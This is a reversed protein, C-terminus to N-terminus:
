EHLEKEFRQISLHFTTTEASCEVHVGGGHAEAIKKVISLGLGSGSPGYVADVGRYYREFIKKREEARITSGAMPVNRICIWTESPAQQIEIAIHSGIASYKAANDVLQQLALEMMSADFRDHQPNDPAAMKIRTQIEKEQERIVKRVLEVISTSSRRLRIEKSELAATQLLRNTLQNLMTAREDIISVLEAQTPSLRDIALLGSSAARIATLPTKFSHALGDLVATRLREADREIEARNERQIAHTREFTIAALSAVADAALPDILWGCMSMGGICNTGLRLVRHSCRTVPDDWDKEELYADYALKRSDSLETEGPNETREAAIWFKVNNVSFLERILTSLQDSTSRRQDLLLIARSLEFLKLARERQTDAQVSHLHVKTSLGSVLLATAEFTFLSVWNQPDAVSFTFVPETFLFNLSLFAVISVATAQFFGRRLAVLLVFLLEIFGASSLNIHLWFGIISIAIAILAFPLATLLRFLIQGSDLGTRAHPITRRYTQKERDEMFSRVAGIDFLSSLAYRRAKQPQWAAVHKIPITAKELYPDSLSGCREKNGNICLTPGMLPASGILFAYPFRM